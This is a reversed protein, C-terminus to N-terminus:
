FSIVDGVRINKASVTGAPLELVYMAPATSNYTPREQLPITREHITVITKNADIYLIDLSAYTNQMWFSRFASENFVFLMGTDQPIEQRYMLGVRREEPDDAIEATVTYDDGITVSTTPLMNTKVVPTNYTTNSVAQLTFIACISGLPIFVLISGFLALERKIKM